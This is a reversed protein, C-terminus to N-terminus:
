GGDRWRGLALWLGIVRKAFPTLRTRRHADGLKRLAEARTPYPFVADSLAEIGVGARMLGAVHGIMEGAGEGVISAGLIRGGRGSVRLQVFGETSGDLVARDVGEFPQEFVRFAVGRASLESSTAGVRASEPDTFTCSPILLSSARGRGGFLANRLALRATADAAHTFRRSGSGDAVDGAAFVRRNTTRLRDDLALGGDSTREIGAAGLNLGDLDLRRGTAALIADAVITTSGESGPGSLRLTGDASVSEVTTGVRISVGDRRLGAEVRASAEPEDRGLLRPGREILTTSAGFRALAQVLECGIPGGGLVAWRRPLRTMSFITENTHFGFESLGPIDPISPRTGTALLARRFRLRRSGSGSGGGSGSAEVEVADRAAFRAEGFIVEVGLARFREASDHRALEARLARTRSAAAGFDFGLAGRDIGTVGFRSAGSAESAARASRLWGKSPACGFNLCDGGLMRREILAVRAGLGAAGASAVLGAAGGGIVVLDYKGDFGSGASVGASRGVRELLVRDSDDAPEFGRDRDRDRSGVNADSM